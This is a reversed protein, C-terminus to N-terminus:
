LGFTIQLNAIDAANYFFKVKYIKSYRVSEAAIYKGAEKLANYLEDASIKVDTAHLKGKALFVCALIFKWHGDHPVNSHRSRQSFFGNKRRVIFYGYGRGLSGTLSECQASLIIEM